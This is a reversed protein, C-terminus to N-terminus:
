HPDGTGSTSSTPDQGRVKRCKYHGEWQHNTVGLTQNGVADRGTRGM